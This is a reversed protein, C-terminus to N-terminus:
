GGEGRPQKIPLRVTFTSGVGVESAVTLTGGHAEVIQYSIMLGLGVGTSKTTFGPDFIRAKHEIAIGRGTDTVAIAVWEGELSTTITVRGADDIAQCANALLNMLVQNIQNRHCEIRPLDAYRRTIVTNPRALHAILLLTSDLVENLDTSQVDTGDLRAFTRLTRVIGTIRSCAERTVSLLREVAALDRAIPAGLAIHQSALEVRLREFVRLFLDNNSVVAGLPTNIEHAVGAVLQGLSAMKGQQVLRAQAMRLEGLLQGLEQNKRQLEEVLRHRELLIRAATYLEIPNVPKRLYYDVGASLGAIRFASDRRATTVVIPAHLGGSGLIRRVLEFGSM